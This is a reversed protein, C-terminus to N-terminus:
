HVKGGMRTHVETNTLKIENKRQENMQRNWKEIRKM